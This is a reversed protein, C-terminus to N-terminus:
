WSWGEWGKQSQADCQGAELWLVAFYLESMWCLQHCKVQMFVTILWSNETRTETVLNLCFEKRQTWSGHLGQNESSGECRELLLQCCCASSKDSQRSHAPLAFSPLSPLPKVSSLFCCAVTIHSNSYHIIKKGKRGIKETGSLEGQRGVWMIKLSLILAFQLPPLPLCCYHWCATPPSPPTGSFGTGVTTGTQSIQLDM